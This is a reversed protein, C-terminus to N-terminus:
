FRTLAAALGDVSLLNLDGLAKGEKVSDGGCYRNAFGQFDQGATTRTKIDM